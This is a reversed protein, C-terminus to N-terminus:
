LLLWLRKAFAADHRLMSTFAVNYLRWTGAKFKGTSTTQLKLLYKAGFNSAMVQMNNGSDKQRLEFLKIVYKQFTM